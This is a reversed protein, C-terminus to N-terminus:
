HHDRRVSACTRSHDGLGGRRSYPHPRLTGPRRHRGRHPSRWRKNEPLDALDPRHGERTHMVQYGKARAAALVGRLPEIPARTLSLNYGMADM